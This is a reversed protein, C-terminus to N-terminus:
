SRTSRSQRASTRLWVLFALLVVLTVLSGEPGWDGGTLWTPWSPSVAYSWTTGSTPAPPAVVAEQVWNWATHFGCVWWLSGERFAVTALVVGVTFLTVLLAVDTNGHIVAFFASSVIIGLRQSRQAAISPALYGRIFCEETSAQVAVTVMTLGFVALSARPNVGRWELAGLAFLMGFVVASLTLGTLIGRLAPMWGRGVFGLTRLPRGEKLHLWLWLLALQGGFLPLESLADRIPQDAIGNLVATSLQMAALGGVLILAVTVIPALWWRTPRRARRTLAVLESERGAASEAPLDSPPPNM